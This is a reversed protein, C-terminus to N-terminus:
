PCGAAFRNMFCMFDAADFNADNNCNAYPDRRAFANLFCLFDTVNLMPPTTSLDCNAYCTPCGIYMVAQSQVGYAAFIGNSYYRSALVMARGRPTNMVVMSHYTPTIFTYLGGPVAEWSHGDWRAIGRVPLYNIDSFEGVFFIAPGRGDDYLCIPGSLTNTGEPSHTAVLDTWSTGDFVSMSAKNTTLNSYHAGSCVLRPGVGWDFIVSREPHGAGGVAPTPLDWAYGNFRAFNSTVGNITFSGGFAYLAPGTGNDYVILNTPVNGSQSGGVPVWTAGTWVSVKAYMGPYVGYIRPGGGLDGSRIPSPLGDVWLGPSLARWVGSARCHTAWQYQGGGLAKWTNVYAKLGTGQDLFRVESLHNDQLIGAPSIEVWQSGDWFHIAGDDGIAYVGPGEEGTGAFM